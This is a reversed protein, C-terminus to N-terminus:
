GLQLVPYKGAEFSWKLDSLRLLEKVTAPTTFDDKTVAELDNANKSQEGDVYCKSLYKEELKACCFADWPYEWLCFFGVNPEYAACMSFSTSEAWGSFGGMRLESEHMNQEEYFGERPVYDNEAAFCSSTAGGIATGYFGGVKVDCSSADAELRGGITLKNSVSYSQMVSGANVGAFGGTWQYGTSYTLIQNDESYSASVQAGAAIYAALGGAWVEATSYLNGLGKQRWSNKPEITNGKSYSHTISGGEGLSGVLGGVNTDMLYMSATAKITTNTVACDSIEGASVGVLGGALLSGTGKWETTEAGTLEISVNDVSCGRLYAEGVHAKNKGSYTDSYCSMSGAIAGVRHNKDTTNMTVKMTSNKVHVNEIRLNYANKSDALTQGCVIGVSFNSDTMRPEAIVTISDLTINKVNATRFLGINTVDNLGVASFIVNSLTHGNGDVPAGPLCNTITEGGADIDADLVVSHGSELNKWEEFTSVHTPPVSFLGGEGDGCAALPLCASAVLVGCALTGLVAKFKKM